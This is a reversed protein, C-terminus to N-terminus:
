KWKSMSNEVAKLLAPNKDYDSKSFRRAEEPTYYEKVTNDQHTMQNKVSGMVKYDKKPKTSAYINYIETIPTDKTFKKAFAKFEDSKYEEEAVGIKVLENEMETNRLHETIRSYLAKDKASMRDGLGKLRNVEEIVDEYDGNIIEEAEANALIEIERSSYGKREPIDVGRDKYHEGFMQTLEEVNSKGTGAKLVDTLERHSSLERDLKKEWKANNRAIKKGVIQNVEDETYTKAPPADVVETVEETPTEVNETVEETVLNENEMCVEM